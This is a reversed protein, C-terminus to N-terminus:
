YLMVYYLDSSGTLMCSDWVKNLVSNALDVNKNKYLADKFEEVFDEDPTNCLNASQPVEVSASIIFDTWDTWYWYGLKDSNCFLWPQFPEYLPDDVSSTLYWNLVLADVVDKTCWNTSEPLKNNDTNYSVIATWISLLDNKRAIDRARQQAAGLRPVLAGALIWIFVFIGLVLKVASIITWALAAWRLQKRKLAIIWFILWLINFWLLSLVFSAIALWQKPEEQSNVTNWNVTQQYVKEEM